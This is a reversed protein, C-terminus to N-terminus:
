PYPHSAINGDMKVSAIVLLDAASTSFLAHGILARHLASSDTVVCGSLKATGASDPAGFSEGLSNVSVDKRNVCDFVPTGFLFGLVAEFFSQKSSM